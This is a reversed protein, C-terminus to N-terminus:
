NELVLRYRANGNRLAQVADAAQKMPYKQIWPTVGTEVAFELMERIDKPSGIMSGVLSIQHRVLIGPPIGSLPTEPIGVLIFKGNRKLMLMFKEWEINNGFSTCVVHTLTGERKILESIDSSVVYDSAGLLKADDRKRDSSSFVVVDAGMAKAWQVVFHGIGGIGIVGVRSGEKVDHNKLPSYATIGACLFTAAIENSMGDPVKFVFHQHGRWREAYGGYTKDGSPWRSNYTKTIGNRCLNEQDTECEGCNFCSCCQAGVGVKENIKFETVNKGVKTVIGTIEHGVVCPYDTTNPGWGSDLTHIDSGCLGCHTIAIEVDDDEFKKLQLESWELPQGKGSCSWGHFTNETTFTM